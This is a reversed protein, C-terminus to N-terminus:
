SRPLRSRRSSRKSNDIVVDPALMDLNLEEGSAFDKSQEIGRRAIDITENAM